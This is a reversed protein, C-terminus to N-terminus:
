PLLFVEAGRGVLAVPRNASDESAEVIRAGIVRVRKGPSISTGVLNDGPRARLLVETGSDLENTLAGTRLIRTHWSWEGQRAVIVLELDASHFVTELGSRPRTEVATAVATMKEQANIIPSTAPEWYVDCLQRVDCWECAERSPRAPVPRISVSQRTAASRKTLENALQNLSEDDPAPVAVVRDSYVVELNTAAIRKPNIAQDRTWLLAYTLIQKSHDEKETGTKFDVISCRGEELLILDAKGYWDLESNFLPVESHVGPRLEAREFGSSREPIPELTKNRARSGAAQSSNQGFDINQLLTKVRERLLPLERRMEAELELGRGVIRPNHSWEGSLGTIVGDLLKSIGGLTRLAAVVADAILPKGIAESNSEKKSLDQTAQNKMSKIVRELATHVITGGVASLSLRAPYGVSEVNFAYTSRRLAWRLPCAEIDRLTSFSM